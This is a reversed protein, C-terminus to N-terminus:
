SNGDDKDFHFWTINSILEEKLFQKNIPSTNINNYIKIM